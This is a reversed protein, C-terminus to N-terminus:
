RDEMPTLGLDSPGFDPDKLTSVIEDSGGDNTETGACFTCREADAPLHARAMRQFTMGEHDTFRCAPETPDDPHPDHWSELHRWRTRCVVVDDSM